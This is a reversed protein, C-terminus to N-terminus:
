FPRAGNITFSTIFPLFEPHDGEANISGSADILGRDNEVVIKGRCGSNVGGTRHVKALFNISPCSSSLTFTFTYQQSSNSDISRTLSSQCNSVNGIYKADRHDTSQSFGLSPSIKVEVKQDIKGINQLNLSCTATMGLSSSGGTASGFTMTRVAFITFPFFLFFVILAKM